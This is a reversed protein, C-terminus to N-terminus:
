RSNTEDNFLRLEFARETSIEVLSQLEEAVKERTLDSSTIAVVSDTREVFGAKTGHSTDAFYINNDDQDVAILECSTTEPANVGDRGALDEYCVTDGTYEPSGVYQTLYYEGTSYGAFQIDLIPMTARTSRSEVLDVPAVPQFELARYGRGKEILSQTWLDDVQQAGKTIQYGIVGITAILLVASAIRSVGKSSVTLGTLGSIMLLTGAIDLLGSGIDADFASSITFASILKLTFGGITLLIFM